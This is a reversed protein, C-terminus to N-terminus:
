GAKLVEIIKKYASQVSYEKEVHSRAKQIYSARLDVDEFLREISEYWDDENKALMGLDGDCLIHANVGYPSAIVPVGTAMYLLIKLGCKGKSWPGDDLPAIGLDFTSLIDKESELSWKECIVQVGPIAYDEAGVIKLICKKEKALRKFVTQLQDLYFLTTPSGMWGITFVEDKKIKELMAYYDTDIVTPMVKVCTNYKKAIDALYANGAHVCYSWEVIKKFGHDVTMDNAEGSGWKPSRSFIADDFDFIIKKGMKHVIWEIIPYIHPMVPKQLFVYDAQHVYRLQVLRKILVYFTFIGKVFVNKSYFYLSHYKKPIAPLVTCTIGEGELYPVFQYVRYRSSAGLESAQTFFVIKM